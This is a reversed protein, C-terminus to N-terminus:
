PPVTKQTFHSKPLFHRAYLYTSNPSLKSLLAFISRIEPSIVAHLPLKEGEQSAIQQV